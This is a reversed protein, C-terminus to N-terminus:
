ALTSPLILAKGVIQKVNPFQLWIQNPNSVNLAKEKNNIQYDQENYKDKTNYQKHLYKDTELIETKRDQGNLLIKYAESIIQERSM